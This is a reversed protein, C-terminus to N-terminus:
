LLEVSNAFLFTGGLELNNNDSMWDGDVSVIFGDQLDPTKDNVIAIVRNWTTVEKPEGGRYSELHCSGLLFQIAKQGNAFGKKIDKVKGIM